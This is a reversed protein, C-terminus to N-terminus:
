RGGSGAAAASATTAVPTAASSPTVATPVVAAPASGAAQVICQGTDIMVHQGLCFVDEYWPKSVALCQNLNMKSLNLCYSAGASNTPENLLNQISAAWVPDEAYGLASLAAIAMGRVVVPTYPPQQSSGTLSSPQQGLAVARLREIVPPEAPALSSALAKVNALRQERNPIAVKSWAQKQVSYAAQKVQEGAIRVRMGHNNLASYALGAAGASNPVGVVYAPDRVINAAVEARQAPNRAYQRVSEVFAADQLAAVAAYAVAGSALQRPEYAAALTLSREVDAGQTFAPTVAATREMYAEFAGALEVVRPTVAVPPPPPVVPAPPAEVPATPPATECSALALASAAAAALLIIRPRFM